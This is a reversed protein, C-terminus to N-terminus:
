LFVNRLRCCLVDLKWHWLRIKQLRLQKWKQIMKKYRRSNSSYIFSMVNPKIFFNSGEFDLTMLFYNHKANWLFVHTFILLIGPWNRLRYCPIRIFMIPLFDFRAVAMDNWWVSQEAPFSKFGWLVMWESILIEVSSTIDREYSDPLLYIYTYQTTKKIWIM